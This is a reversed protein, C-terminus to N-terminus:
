ETITITKDQKADLYIQNGEDKTVLYESQLWTRTGHYSDIHGRHVTVIYYHEGGNPDIFKRFEIQQAVKGFESGETKVNKIKTVTKARLAMYREIESIDMVNKM